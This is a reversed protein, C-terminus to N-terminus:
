KDKNQKTYEVCDKVWITKIWGSNQPCEELGQKIMEVKSANKSLESFTLFAFFATIAIAIALAEFKM